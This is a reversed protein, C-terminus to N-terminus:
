KCSFSFDHAHWLSLCRFFLVFLIDPLSHFLFIQCFLDFVFTPCFISLYLRVFFWVSLDFLFVDSLLNPAAFPCCLVFPGCPGCSGCFGCPVYPVRPAVPAVPWLHCLPVTSRIAVHCVQKAALSTVGTYSTFEPTIKDLSFDTNVCSAAVKIHQLVPKFTPPLVRLM